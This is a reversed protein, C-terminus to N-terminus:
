YTGDKEGQEINSETTKRTRKASDRRSGPPRTPFDWSAGTRARSCSRLVRSGDRDGRATSSGLAARGLAGHQANHHRSLFQPGPGHLARLGHRHRVLLPLLGRPRHALAARRRDRRQRGHSHGPGPLQICKKCARCFDLVAPAYGAPDPVLPIDTTVVGLRVRPGLEPTMLLGMRGIEGLGADRAVLPAVVRYNGDIHALAPYGMSRILNGTSRCDGGRQRVPAGIGPDDAGCSGHGGSPPGDGGYLRHRLSSEGHHLAM